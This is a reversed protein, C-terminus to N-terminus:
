NFSGEEDLAAGSSQHVAAPSQSGASGDGSTGHPHAFTSLSAGRAASRALVPTHLERSSSVASPRHGTCYLTLQLLLSAVALSEGFGQGMVQDLPVVAARRCGEVRPLRAPLTTLRRAETPPGLHPTLSRTTSERLEHQPQARGHQISSILSSLSAIQAIRQSFPRQLETFDRGVARCLAPDVEPLTVLSLRATRYRM